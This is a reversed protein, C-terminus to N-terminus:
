RPREAAVASAVAALCADEGLEEVARAAPRRWNPHADTTGPINAQEVTGLADDIQVALIASPARAVLAHIAANLAPALTAPPAEPDLGDPLLGEAALRRLLRRRDEAREARWRAADEHGTRGLREAWDIDRAAWWGALTPTDHTGVSAAARAPYAAPPRFDGSPEREFQMVSSGHIHSQAMRERLGEPVVGLDEGIVVAGARAAELRVIAMLVDRPMRVYSGPTGDGPVWFTRDFGLIHDIRVLGAHRMAARITEVFPRFGVAELGPPSFPALGWSQGGPAFQDPPAGLSVGTAFVGPRAWVEAGNPRVGVALDTYLGLAMGAARAEAQAQALQEDALWQLWAHFGLADGQAVAFARAGPADPSDFGEPWRRWDTGHRESLAEFLAFDALARGRAERFAAFAARRQPTARERFAAHLAALVPARHARAAAHDILGDSRTSPRAAWLARADPADTFEPVRDPAIARTDLFGRHGPSYPSFGPYAAGLAHLPNVGLFDAGLPALVAAAARLDAYDGPGPNRASHLAHIAGTFGWVRARGTAGAVSPAEPPASVVLCREAGVALEHLGPPLAPLELMGASRGEAIGGSEFTLRWEVGRPLPLASPRWALAVHAAPLVQAALRARAAAAADAAEAPDGILGMARLLATATERTTTHVHGSLDVWAPLIGALGALDLIPDPLHAPTM